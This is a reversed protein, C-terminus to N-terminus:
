AAVKFIVTHKEALWKPLTVYVKRDRREVKVQSKPIYNYRNCIHHYMDLGKGCVYKYANTGASMLVGQELVYTVLKAGEEKQRMWAEEREKKEREVKEKWQRGREEYQELTWNSDLLAKQGCATLTGDPRIYSSIIFACMLGDTIIYAGNQTHRLITIGSEFTHPYTIQTDM